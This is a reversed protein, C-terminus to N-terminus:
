ALEFVDNVVINAQGVSEASVLQWVEYPRQDAKHREAHHHKDQLPAHSQETEYWDQYLEQRHPRHHGVFRVTLTHTGIHIVLLPHAALRNLIHTTHRHHFSELLRDVGEVSKM